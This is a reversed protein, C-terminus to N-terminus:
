VRATRLRGWIWLLCQHGTPAGWSKHIRSTRPVGQESEQFCWNTCVVGARGVGQCWDGGVARFAGQISHQRPQLDRLIPPRIEKQGDAVM